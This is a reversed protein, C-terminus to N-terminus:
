LLNTGITRIIVLCCRGPRIPQVAMAQVKLVQHYTGRPFGCFERPGITVREGEVEVIIAAQFVLFCGDSEQHAHPLPDTWSEKTNFIVSRCVIQSFHLIM